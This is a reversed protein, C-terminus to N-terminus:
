AIEYWGEDSPDEDGEPTVKVYATGSLEYYTKDTDVTTDETVSATVGIAVKVAKTADTLAAIYYKRSFATNLRTNADDAGRNNKVYTEVETGTKVFLTVAEKTAIVIDNDGAIKTVYIPVGACTGVYGTRAFSENYKLDDKLAKRLAALKSPKVLAFCSPAGADTAEVNMAACADVFADFYSTGSLVVVIEANEFEAMADANITNFMDSAARGMGVPVVMPDAMAEEDYWEFRNQALAIKYEKQAYSVVISETNGESIELKQTGSTASYVNIKKTDGAVGVLTDDVTCFDQLNLKTNFQDEVENALYFNSYVTNIGAM